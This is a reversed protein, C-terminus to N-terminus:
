IWRLRVRFFLLLPLILYRKVLTKMIAAGAQDGKVRVVRAFSHAAEKSMVFGGDKTRDFPTGVEVLELVHEKAAATVFTAIDADVIGDGAIVTDNAHAEPTDGEDM